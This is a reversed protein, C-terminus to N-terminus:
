KYFTPVAPVSVEARLVVQSLLRTRECSLLDVLACACVHVSMCVEILIHLCFLRILVRLRFLKLFCYSCGKLTGRIGPM